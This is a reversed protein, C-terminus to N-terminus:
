RDDVGRAAEAIAPNLGGRAPGMRFWQEIEVSSPRLGSPHHLAPCDSYRM